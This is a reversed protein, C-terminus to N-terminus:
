KDKEELRRIKIGTIACQDGSFAAYIKPVKVDIRTIDKLRIGENLTYVTVTNDKRYIKVSCDVGQKQKAKWTDWDEFNEEKVVSIKSAVGEHMEWGEGDMRMLAFEQFDPGNMEGNASYYLIVFPCHWLLRATPLSLSHLTIEMDSDLEIGKSSATRWADIQVNPIDGEPADIYSIEEAIRPIHDKGIQEETKDIKVDYIHCNEGTLGLYVYRSSDKLAFIVQHMEDGNSITFMAHDRYKVCEIEYCSGKKGIMASKEDKGATSQSKRISGDKVTGDPSIEGYVDYVMEKAKGDQEHTRADLADFILFSPGWNGKVYGEVPECRFFVKTVSRDVLIGESIVSRPEKVSLEIKGALGEKEDREQMVYEEDVDLMHLMIKAFRPDFQTEMGKVLEERVMQQPITKRYSRKSTMADYADAVAIIRAIEPIDDGKLGEPYGRGDYREHHYNAGISLYPSESISSLIQKGIVPHRKIQAYEENTLKGDKNIISDDIGIKGVDHLLGAYYVEECEEDTKGALRAIRESYEAVRASHGRTYSDKADIASALAEATQEFLKKMKENQDRFHEVEADNLALLRRSMDLLAFVFIVEVMAVITMNIVSVGYAFFQVIGALLPLISFLILSISIGPSLKKYYQIIVTVQLILSAYHFVFNLWVGSGRHYLNLEDFYYYMGTYQSVVLMVIDAALIWSVLRLRRPIKELGGEDTYLDELYFNFVLSEFISMFFVMFNAIRVMWYGLDSEDGRYIYAYRDAILLFAAGMEMVFLIMRRKTSTNVMLLAFFATLICMGILMLMITLQYTQLFALM